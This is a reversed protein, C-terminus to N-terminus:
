QPTNANQVFGFGARLAGIGALAPTTIFSIDFAPTSVDVTMATIVGLLAIDLCLGITKRLRPNEIVVNPTEVATLRDVESRLIQNELKLSNRTDLKPVEDTFPIPPDFRVGSIVTDGDREEFPIQKSM